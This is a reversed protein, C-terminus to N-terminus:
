EAGLQKKAWKGGNDLSFHSGLHTSSELYFPDYGGESGMLIQVQEQLMDGSLEMGMKGAPFLKKMNWGERISARSYNVINM